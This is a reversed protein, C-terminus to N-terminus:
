GIQVGRNLTDKCFVNSKGENGQEVEQLTHKKTEYKNTTGYKNAMTKHKNTTKGYKMTIEYKNTMIEYKNM